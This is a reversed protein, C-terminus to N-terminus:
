KQVDKWLKWAGITTTFFWAVIGVVAVIVQDFIRRARNIVDLHGNTIPDFSGPYIGIKMLLTCQPWSLPYTWGM